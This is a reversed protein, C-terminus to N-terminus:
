VANMRVGLSEALSVLEDPITQRRRQTLSSSSSAATPHAAATTHLQVLPSPAPSHAYARALETSSADVRHRRYETISAQFLSNNPIHLIKDRYHVGGVSLVIANTSEALPAAADSGLLRMKTRRAGLELVEYISGAYGIIKGPEILTESQIWFGTVYQSAVDQFLYTLALALITSYGIIAAFNVNAATLAAAFGLALVLAAILAGSQYRRNRAIRCRAFFFDMIVPLCTAVGCSAFVVLSFVVLSVATESFFAETSAVVLAEASM